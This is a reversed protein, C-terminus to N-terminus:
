RLAKRVALTQLEPEVWKSIVAYFEEETVPKSLYDDMGAALCKERDEDFANATLAIIPIHEGPNVGAKLEASRVKATAALGDLEPMHVDMLILDFLRPSNKKINANVAESIVERGNKVHSVTHGDRALLSVMLLANIDNDEALLINLKRNLKPKAGAPKDATGAWSQPAQTDWGAQHVAQFRKILSRHRIPKILYGAFGGQKFRTLANRQQPWISVLAQIQSSDDPNEKIWDLLLDPSNKGTGDDCLISTFPTESKAARTLLTRAHVLDACIDVRAGSFTLYEQAAASMVKDNSVILVRLDALDETDAHQPNQYDAVSFPLTFEFKSGRGPASKVSIQGGMKEILRKSIALGLGTGGYKRSPTSDAQKFEGFVAKADSKSMGIGTDSIAFGISIKQESRKTKIKELPRAELYISGQETFKLANGALNLLIQRLRAEDGTLEAKLEPAVFCAIDLNKAHARPALLETVDELLATLDFENASLALKDAEIKSFDLIDDILSLLAGGSKAIAGTYTQQEETLDTNELLRTMGLVGNMPTRIEHSMTALFMSKAQNATEALDRAKALEQEISKQASIDRGVTQIEQLNGASDFIARDEWAIWCMGQATKVYQDYRVLFPPAELTKALPQKRRGRSVKIPFPKNLVDAEFCEFRECFARNVFTLRGRRDKRLIIDGQANVLSRYRTESETLRLTQRNLEILRRRAQLWAYCGGAAVLLAGTALLEAKMEVIRGSLAVGMLIVLGAMVSVIALGASLIKSLDFRGWPQGPLAERTKNPLNDSM